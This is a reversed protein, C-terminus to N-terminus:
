RGGRGWTAINLADAAHDSGISVGRFRARAVDISSRKGVDRTQKGLMAGQWSVPAVRVVPGYAACMAVLAGVRRDLGAKTAVNTRSRQGPRPPPPAFTDEVLFLALGDGAIVAEAIETRACSLSTRDLTPFRFERVMAARDSVSAIAADAGVDIAVVRPAVARPDIRWAWAKPDGDSTDTIDGALTLIRSAPVLDYRPAVARATM